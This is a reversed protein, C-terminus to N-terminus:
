PRPAWMADGRTARVGAATFMFPAFEGGMVTLATRVAPHASSPVALLLYGGGGAGCV